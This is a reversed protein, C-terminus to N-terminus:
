RWSLDQRTLAAQAAKINMQAAGVHSAFANVSSTAASQNGARLATMADVIDVAGQQSDSLAARYPKGFGSVCSPPPTQLAHASDTGLKGGERFTLTVTSATQHSSAVDQLDSTVIGVDTSIQNFAARGHPGNAWTKYATQCATTVATGSSTGGGCAASVLGVAAVSAIAVATCNRHNLM